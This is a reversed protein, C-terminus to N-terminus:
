TCISKLRLPTHTERRKPCCSLRLFGQARELNTVLSLVVPRGLCHRYFRPPQLAPTYPSEKGAAVDMPTGPTAAIKALLPLLAAAQAPSIMVGAM